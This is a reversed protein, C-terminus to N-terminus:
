QYKGLLRLNVGLRLIGGLNASFCRLLGALSLLVDGLAVLLLLALPLLAVGNVDVFDQLLDV